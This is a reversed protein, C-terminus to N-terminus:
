LDKHQFLACAASLFIAVLIAAYALGNAFVGFPLSGSSSIYDCTWFMQINPILLGLYHVFPNSSACLSDGAIGAILLLICIALSPFVDLRVSLMCSLASFVATAALILLSVPVVQIDLNSFSPSWQGDRNFLFTALMLVLLFVCLMTSAVRCFNIRRRNHLVAAVALSIAPAFLVAFRALRDTTYAMEEISFREPIREAIVTTALICFWFRLVVRMVGMWKGFIFESRSIPKSVAVAATGSAIEEHIAASAASVALLVGIVLQYALGGDRVLRGPEGFQHLQLFPILATAVTGFLTLLLVLPKGFVDAAM